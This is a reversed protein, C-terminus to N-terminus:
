SSHLRKAEPEEHQKGHQEGNPACHGSAHKARNTAEADLRLHLQGLRRVRVVVGVRRMVLMLLVLDRRLVMAGTMVMRAAVRVVVRAAVLAIQTRRETGHGAHDARLHCEGRRLWGGGDERVEVSRRGTKHRVALLTRRSGDSGNLGGRSALHREHTRVPM